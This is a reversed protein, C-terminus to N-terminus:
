HATGWAKMSILCWALATIHDCPFRLHAEIMKRGFWWEVFDILRFQYCACM